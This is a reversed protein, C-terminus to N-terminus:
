SLICKHTQCCHIDNYTCATGKAIHISTLEKEYSQNFRQDTVPELENNFHRIGAVNFCCSCLYSHYRM